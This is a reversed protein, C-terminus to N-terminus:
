LAYRNIECATGAAYYTGQLSSHSTRYLKKGYVAACRGTGLPAPDGGGFGGTAIGTSYPNIGTGANLPPSPSPPPPSPSPPQAGPPSPPPPSPSPPPPSPNPPPPDAAAVALTCDGACGNNLNQEACTKQCKTCIKQKNCNKKNYAKDFCTSPTEQDVCAALNRGRRPRPLGAESAAAKPAAAPLADLRRGPQM